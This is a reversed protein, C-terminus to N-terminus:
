ALKQIPVDISLCILLDLQDGVTQRARDLFVLAINLAAALEAKAHSHLAGRDFM